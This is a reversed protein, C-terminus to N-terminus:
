KPTRSSFAAPSCNERLLDRVAREDARQMPRGDVPSLPAQRIGDFPFVTAQVTAGDLSFEYGPFVDTRDRRMKLRREFSRPALGTADLETAIAEATDHFVHLNVASNEDATGNLVPGVLRPSFAELLTMAHVATRRLRDLLAAHDEGGFIQHYDGIAQEIEGNGPLSGRDTFGLRDAAKRKALHYDRIGQTVIIRATEQAVLLRKRDLGGSRAAKTPNRPM